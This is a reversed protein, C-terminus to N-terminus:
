KHVFNLSVEVQPLKENWVLIPCEVRKHGLVTAESKFSSIRMRDMECEAAFQGLSLHLIDISSDLVCVCVDDAFLLFLIRLCGFQVSDVEESCRSVRDMFLLLKTSLLMGPLTWSGSSILGAVCVLKKRFMYLFQFIGM